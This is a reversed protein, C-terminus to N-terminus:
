CMGLAAAHCNAFPAAGSPGMIALVQGPAAAGSVNRLVPLKYTRIRAFRSNRELPQDVEVNLDVWDLQIM